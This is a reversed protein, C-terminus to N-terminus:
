RTAFLYASLELSTDVITYEPKTWETMHAGAKGSPNHASELIPAGHTKTM